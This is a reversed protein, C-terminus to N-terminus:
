ASIDMLPRITFTKRRIVIKVQKRSSSALKEDGNDNSDKHIYAETKSTGSSSSCDSEIKQDGADLHLPPPRQDIVEEEPTPM